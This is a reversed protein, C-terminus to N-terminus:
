LAAWFTTKLVMRALPLDAPLKSASEL